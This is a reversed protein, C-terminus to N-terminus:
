RTLGAVLNQLAMRWALPSGVLDDRRADRAKLIDEDRLLEQAGIASVALRTRRVYFGEAGIKVAKGERDVLAGTLQLVMVLTELSTLWPLKAVYGTGLDVEKTGTFGRQRTLYQSVELTIVLTQDVGCNIMLERNWAIWEPSPRGVALHMPLRGRGLAGDRDKCDDDPLGSSTECGFRVDPPSSTARHTVASVRGGEALKRSVGISDLFANMDSLLAAVPTGAEDRPDFIPAQGAGRQYAVPLHGIAGSDRVGAGAYYPPADPFSDGVGSRFTAGTSACATAFMLVIMAAVLAILMQITRHASELGPNRRATASSVRHPQRVIELELTKEPDLVMDLTRM